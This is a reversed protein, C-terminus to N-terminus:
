AGWIRRGAAGIVGIIGEVAHAQSREEAIRGGLLARRGRWRGGLFLGLATDTNRTGGSHVQHGIHGLGGHRVHM